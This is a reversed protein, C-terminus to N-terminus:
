ATKRRLRRYSVLGCLLIGGCASVFTAPEPVATPALDLEGTFAAIGDGATDTLTFKLDVSMTTYSSPGVGVTVLGFSQTTTEQTVSMDTGTLGAPPTSVDLLPTVSIGTVLTPTIPNSTGEDTVTVGASNTLTGFVGPGVPILFTIDYASGGVPTPGQAHFTWTLLPDSSGVFGTYSGGAGTTGTVVASVDDPNTYLSIPAGDVKGTITPVPVYTASARQSLAGMSLLLAAAFAALWRKSM